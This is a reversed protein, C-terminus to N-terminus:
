AEELKFEIVWCWPNKDWGCGRKDYISNWLAAFACKPDTYILGDGNQYEEYPEGRVPSSLTKGTVGEQECDSPTIDQVREVRVDTVELTIRSAWRPMHTPPHWKMNQPVSVDPESYKGARVKRVPHSECGIFGVQDSRYCVAPYSGSGSYTWVESWTERVWLKDGPQGYPCEGIHGQDSPQPKIVRRTQTKRGELIARVMEGNFLIPKENIM